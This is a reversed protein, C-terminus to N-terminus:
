FAFSIGRWAISQPATTTIVRTVWLKSFLQDFVGPYMHVLNHFTLLACVVGLVKAVMQESSRLRDFQGVLLTIILGISVEVLAEVDLDAGPDPMGQIHYRLYRGLGFALFGMVFSLVMSLPYGANCILTMTRSPPPKRSPRDLVYTEDLGVYLTAKRSGASAEIRAVRAAFEVEQPTM